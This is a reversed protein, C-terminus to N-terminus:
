MCALDNMRVVVDDEVWRGGGDRGGGGTVWEDSPVEGDLSPNESDAKPAHSSLLLGHVSEFLTATLEM